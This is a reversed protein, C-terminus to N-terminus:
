VRLALINSETTEVKDIRVSSRLVAIPQGITLFVGTFILNIFIVRGTGRRAYCTTQSRTGTTPGSGFTHPGSALHVGADTRGSSWGARLGESPGAAGASAAATGMGWVGPPGCDDRLVLATPPPQPSSLTDSHWGESPTPELRCTCGLRGTTISGSLEDLEM